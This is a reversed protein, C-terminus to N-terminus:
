KLPISLYYPNTNKKIIKNIVTKIFIIIIIIKIIVLVM